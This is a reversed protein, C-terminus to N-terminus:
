SKKKRRYVTIGIMAGAFTVISVLLLGIVFEIPTEDGTKAAKATNTTGTSTTKKDTPTVTKSAPTVTEPKKKDVMTITKDDDTLSFSVSQASAINYGEPAETETVKYSGPVLEIDKDEDGSTTFTIEDITDGALTTGTVKINAGAVRNGSDDVKKITLTHTNYEDTIKVTTVKDANVTFTKKAAKKYGKPASTETITYKVGVELEDIIYANSDTKFTEIENGDADTVKLTAGALGNGKPDLKQISVSGYSVKKDVMTYTYNKADDVPDTATINVKVAAAAEYGSPVSTEKITYTGPYLNTFTVDATSTTTKTQPTFAAGDLRTGSITLSAGAVRSGTDDVKKVTVTHLAYDDYMTVSEAFGFAEFAIQEAIAYGAPASEETLYYTKGPELGAIIHPETTSVWTDLTNEATIVAGSSVTLTAGPLEKDGTVDCKTFSVSYDSSVLYQNTNDDPEYLYVKSDGSSIASTYNTYTKTLLEAYLNNTVTNNIGAKTLAVDKSKNAMLHWIVAQTAAYFEDETAEIQTEGGDNPYGYFLVTQIAKTVDDGYASLSAQEGGADLVNAKWYATTYTDDAVKRNYFDDSPADAAWNICYTTFKTDPDSIKYTNDKTLGTVHYRGSMNAQTYEEDTTLKVYPIAEAGVKMTGAIWESAPKATETTDFAGNNNTDEFWVGTWGSNTTPKVGFKIKELDSMHLLMNTDTTLATASSLDLENIATETFAGTANTVAAYNFQPIDTLDKSQAFMYNIAAPLTKTDATDTTVKQLTPQFAFSYEGSTVNTTPSLYIEKLATFHETTSNPQMFAQAGVNITGGAVIIDTIADLPLDKSTGDNYTANQLKAEVNETISGGTALLWHSTPNYYFSPQALGAVNSVAYWGAATPDIAVGHYTTVTEAHGPVIPAIIGTCVTLATMLGIIKKRISM